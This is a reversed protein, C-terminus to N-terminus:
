CTLRWRGAGANTLTRTRPSFCVAITLFDCVEAVFDHRVTLNGKERLLQERPGCFTKFILRNVWYRRFGVHAQKKYQLNLFPMYKLTFSTVLFIKYEKIM